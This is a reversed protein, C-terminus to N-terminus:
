FWAYYNNLILILFYLNMCTSALLNMSMTNEFDAQSTNKQVNQFWTILKLIVPLMMLFFLMVSIRQHKLDFYYFLLVTALSFLIGSFIFTGTYGLKYSITTVGDNRDAQHQYIQTLPYVSGIFLSAISMCIINNITFFNNISFAIIASSVMLYTFAGQFVFVTLFGILAYKKLRLNRYSYARSVLVYILVFIAFWISIAVASIIGIIDLLLTAYFLNESVQPPNKLGGISTEDKDQFSNYGNSSPYILLHLIVFAMITTQWNVSNAQSLSFLFVPMLHYSFPLRLHKVTSKDFWSIINLQPM